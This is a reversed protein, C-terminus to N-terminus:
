EPTLLIASMVAFHNRIQARSGAEAHHLALFGQHFGFAVGGLSFFDQADLGAVLSGFHSAAHDGFADDTGENFAANAGQHFHVAFGVENGLVRGEQGQGGGGGLSHDYGVRGVHFGQGGHFDVTLGNFVDALGGDGLQALVHGDTAENAVLGFARDGGVQVAGLDAHDDIEGAFLM